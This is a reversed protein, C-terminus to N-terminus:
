AYPNNQPDPHFNVCLITFAGSMKFNRGTNDEDDLESFIVEYSEGWYGEFTYVTSGGDNEDCSTVLDYMLKYDTPCAVEISWPIISGSLNLCNSREQIIAGTCTKRISLNKDVKPLKYKFQFPLDVPDGGQPTLVVRLNPM